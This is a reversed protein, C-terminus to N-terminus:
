RLVLYLLISKLSRWKKYKKCPTLRAHKKEPEGSLKVAKIMRAKTAVPLFLILINLLILKNGLCIEQISSSVSIGSSTTTRDLRGEGDNFLGFLRFTGIVIRVPNRPAPFDVRKFSIRVLFSKFVRNATMIFSNPSLLFLFSFTQMYM